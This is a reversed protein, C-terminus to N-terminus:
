QTEALVLGQGLHLLLTSFIEPHLRTVHRHPCTGLAGQRLVGQFVAHNCRDMTKDWTAFVVQQRTDQLGKAPQTSPRGAGAVGVAANRPMSTAPSRQAQPCAHQERLKTDCATVGARDQQRVM